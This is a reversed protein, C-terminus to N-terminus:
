FQQTHLTHRRIAPSASSAGRRTTRKGDSWQSARPKTVPLQNRSTRGSSNPCVRRQNRKKIDLITRLSELVKIVSLGFWFGFCSASVTLYETLTTKASAQTVVTPTNSVFSIHSKSVVTIPANSTRLFSAYVDQICDQKACKTQCRNELDLITVMNGTIEPETMFKIGVDKRNVLLGSWKKNFTKVAKDEICLDYCEAQDEFWIDQFVYKSDNILM